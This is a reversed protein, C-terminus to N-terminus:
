PLTGAAQLVTDTVVLQTGSSFDSVDRNGGDQYGFTPTSSSIVVTSSDFNSASNLYGTTPVYGNSPSYYNTGASGNFYIDGTVTSGIIATGWAAPAICLIMTAFVRM